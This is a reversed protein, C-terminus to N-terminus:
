ELLSWPIDPISREESLEHELQLGPVTFFDLLFNIDFSMFVNPNLLLLELDRTSSGMLDELAGEGMRDLESGASVKCLAKLDHSSINM